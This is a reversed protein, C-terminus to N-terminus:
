WDETSTDSDVLTDLLGTSARALCDGNDSSTTTETRESLLVALGHTDARDGNVGTVVLLLHALLQARVCEDVEALALVDDLVNLSGGFITKTGVSDNEKSDGLLGELLGGLYTM